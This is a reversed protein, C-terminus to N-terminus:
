GRQLGQRIQQQPPLLPIRWRLLVQTPFLGAQYKFFSPSRATLCISVFSSHPQWLWCSSTKKNQTSHIIVSNSGHFSFITYCAKWLILPWHLCMAFSPAECSIVKKLAAKAVEILNHFYFSSTLLIVTADTEPNILCTWHFDYYICKEYVLWSFLSGSALSGLNSYLRTHEGNTVNNKFYSTAWFMLITYKRRPQKQTHMLFSFSVFPASLLLALWPTDKADWWIWLKCMDPSLRQQQDHVKGMEGPSLVTFTFIFFVSFFWWPEKSPVYRRSGWMVKFLSTTCHSDEEDGFTLVNATFFASM